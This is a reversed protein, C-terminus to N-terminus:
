WRPSPEQSRLSPAMCGRPVRVQRVAEGGQRVGGAPAREAVRGELDECDDRPSRGELDSRRRGLDAPLHSVQRVWDASVWEQASDMAGASGARASETGEENM